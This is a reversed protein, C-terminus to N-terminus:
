WIKLTVMKEGQEAGRMEAGMEGGLKQGVGVTTLTRLSLHLLLHHLTYVISETYKPGLM